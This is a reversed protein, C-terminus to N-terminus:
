HFLGPVINVSLVAIRYNLRLDLQFVMKDLSSYWYFYMTSNKVVNSYNNSIDVSSNDNSIDM